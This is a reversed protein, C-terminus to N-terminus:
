MNLILLLFVLPLHLIHEFNVIFVSSRRCYPREPAKITLKPRILAPQTISTQRDGLYAEEIATTSLKKAYAIPNKAFPFNCKKDAQPPKAAPPPPPPHIHPHGNQHPPM